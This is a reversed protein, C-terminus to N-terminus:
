LLLLPNALVRAIINTTVKIAEKTATIVYVIQLLHYHLISLIILQYKIHFDVLYNQNRVLIIEMILM